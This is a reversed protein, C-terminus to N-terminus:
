LAQRRGLLVRVADTGYVVDGEQVAQRGVQPMGGPIDPAYRSVQAM